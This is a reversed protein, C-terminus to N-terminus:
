ATTSKFAITWHDKLPKSNNQIPPIFKSNLIYEKEFIWAIIIEYHM